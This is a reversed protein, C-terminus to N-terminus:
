FPSMLATLMAGSEPDLHGRFELTGDRRSHYHFERTSQTLEDDPANGDQDLLLVIRQAIKKFDDGEFKAANDLLVAEVQERDSEPAETLTKDIVNLHQRNLVGAEAAERIGRSAFLEAHRLLERAEAPTVRRLAVLDAVMSTRDEKARATRERLQAVAEVQEVYEARRREESERVFRWLEGDSQRWWEPKEEV